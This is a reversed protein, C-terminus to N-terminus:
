SHAIAEQLKQLLQQVKLHKIKMSARNVIVRTSVDAILDLAELGNARLTNGTDVIDVICDAL